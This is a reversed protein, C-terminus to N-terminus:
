ERCTLCVGKVEVHVSHVDGFADVSKPAPITDFEPSVFDRIKGCKVCIFHHHPASNADFRTREYSIGVMSIIGHEELLRLNRYVTDLSISPIRKRVRKHLEEADPHEDTSALDRFIEMRQHTLKLGHRLCLKEFADM